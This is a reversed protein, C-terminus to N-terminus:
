GVQWGWEVIRLCVHAAAGTVFLAVVFVAANVLVKVLVSTVTPGRRSVGGNVYM